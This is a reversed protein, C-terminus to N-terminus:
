DRDGSFALYETTPAPPPLSAAEHIFHWGGAHQCSPGGASDGGSCGGRLGLALWELGEVGVQM